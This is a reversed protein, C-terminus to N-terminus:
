DHHSPNYLIIQFLSLGFLVLHTANMLVPLIHRGIAPISFGVAIWLLLIIAPNFIAMWKKYATNGKLIAMSFFISVLGIVGRLIYVLVELHTEYDGLISKYASTEIQDQHQVISGLFARSGIWVGGLAFAIFGLGLVVQALLKNGPRLMYYIHLYGAFYFPLGSLVLMHGIQLHSKPVYIFFHFDVVQDLIHESYHLYHEGLGVLISAMLGLCGLFLIMQQEKM